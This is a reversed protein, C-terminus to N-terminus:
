AEREKKTICKMTVVVKTGIGRVSEIRMDFDQKFYLKCRKYVNNLGISSELRLPDDALRNRLRRLDEEHMGKGDDEIEIQLRGNRNRFTHIALRRHKMKEKFGHILCNEAIPQLTLKPLLCSKTEEEVYIEYSFLEDNRLQMILLYNRIYEMEQELTVINQKRNLNVRLIRGFATLIDSIQMNGELIAMMNVSELTNFIFHPNIQSQLAQFEAEKKELETLYVQNILTNTNEAMRNFGEALKGVEDERRFSARVDLNGRGVEEMLGQIEKIPQSIGESLIHSLWIFILLCVAGVLVTLSLVRIIEKTFFSQPIDIQVIWDTKPSQNFFTVCPELLENEETQAYMVNGESDRVTVQGELTDDYSGLIYRFIGADFDIVLFGLYRGTEVDNIGHIYSIVNFSAKESYKDTKYVNTLIGTKRGATIEAYWAEEAFIDGSMEYLNDSISNFYSSGDRGCLYTGVINKNNVWLSILKKHIVESKNRAEKYTYFPSNKLIDQIEEDSYIYYAQREISEVELDIERNIMEVITNSYQRTQKLIIQFSLICIFSGVVLLPLVAFLGYTILLKRGLSIGNM